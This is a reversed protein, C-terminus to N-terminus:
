NLSSWFGGLDSISTLALHLNQVSAAVACIEEWEPLRKVEQTQRKMGIIILHSM